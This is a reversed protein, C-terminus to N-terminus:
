AAIDCVPDSVLPFQYKTCTLLGTASTPVAGMVHALQPPRLMNAPDVDFAEAIALLEDDEFRRKGKLKRNAAPQSIGLIRALDTQTLDHWALLTRIYRARAAQAESITM